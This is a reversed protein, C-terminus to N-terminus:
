DATTVALSASPDPKAHSRFESLEGHLLAMTAATVPIVAAAVLSTIVNVLLFSWGTLLLLVTAVLAPIVLSLTTVLAALAGSRLRQGATLSVSRRIPRPSELSSAAVVGWRALLWLGVPSLVVTFLLANTCARTILEAVVGRPHERVGAMARSWSATTADAALDRVAAAVAVYVISTVPAIIVLGLLTVIVGGWPSGAGAVALGDGLETSETLLWQFGAAVLGALPLLAGIPAFLAPHSRVLLIAAGLHQGARRQQFVPALSAGRWRTRRIILGTITLISALVLVVRVPSDLFRLFAVSGVRVTACFASTAFSGESPLEAAGVRGEDAMWTVPSAWQTKTSPGTPGNNFSPQQEGWRGTFALWPEDGQLHVLTPTVEDIPARTDDCGFGSQASKGFWRESSFYAAHSGEAAFVVPHTGDRRQVPGGDWASLEGGEHQAYMVQVPETGLAAAATDASDFLLQVMEWDGEHRDNWDNYVYFFWYQVVLNGPHAPDTAVRGYVVPEADLDDYIREYSCEPDLANGPVDIHWADGPALDALDDLLPEDVTEGEPGRLVLDPMAFLDEVSMPLYPEGSECDNPQARVAIVPAYRALLEDDPSMEAGTRLPASVMSALASAPPTASLLTIGLGLTVVLRRVGARERVAVTL